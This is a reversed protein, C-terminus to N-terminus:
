FNYKPIIDGINDKMLKEDHVKGFYSVYFSSDGYDIKRFTKWDNPFPSEKCISISNKPIKVTGTPLEVILSQSDEELSIKLAIENKIANYSYFNMGLGSWVALILGAHMLEPVGHSIYFVLGTIASAGITSLIYSTRLQHPNSNTYFLKHEPIASFCRLSHRIM